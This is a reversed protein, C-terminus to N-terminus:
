ELFIVPLDTIDFPLATGEKATLIIPKGIGDAFGLEYYVNPRSKSVDAIVFASRRIQKMIEPIVRKNVSTEDVRKANYGNKNCVRKVSSLLDLYKGSEEFSM